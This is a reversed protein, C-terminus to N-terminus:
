VSNNLCRKSQYQLTNSYSYQYFIDIYQIYMRIIYFDM